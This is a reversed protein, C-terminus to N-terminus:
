RPQGTLQTLMSHFARASDDTTNFRWDRGNDEAQHWLLAEVRPEQAIVARLERIWSAKRGPWAAACAVETFLVPHNGDLATIIELSRDFLESPLTWRYGPVDGWNYGDLGLYDVEAPDPYAEVFSSTQDTLAYPGWVFRITGVGAMDFLARM